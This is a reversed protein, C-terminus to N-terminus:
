AHEKAKEVDAKAKEVHAKAKVVHAAATKVDKPHEVEKAEKKAKVM